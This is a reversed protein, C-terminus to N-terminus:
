NVEKVEVREGYVDISVKLPNVSDYGTMLGVGEIVLLSDTPTGSIAFTGNANSLTRFVMQLNFGVFSGGGGGQIRPRRKYLQAKSAAHMLDNSIADRSTAASHDTFMVIGIIVMIGIVVVGVVILLLQQSGM